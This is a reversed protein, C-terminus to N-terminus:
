RTPQPLSSRLAVATSPLAAYRGAAARHVVAVLAAADLLYCYRYDCALSVVAFAGVYAFAAILLGIVALSAARRDGRRLVDWLGMALLAGALAGWALHSLVPTEEFAEVYDEDWDDKADGRLALGARALADVDDTQVGVSVLPCDADPPTALTDWFVAARVQAYLWPRRLILRRWDDAVPGRPPPLEADASPLKDLYDITAPRFAPGAEIREFREFVPARAHLAPLGLGPDRHDAGALDYAQLMALQAAGGEEGDSRLSFAYDIAMALVVLTALALGARLVGRVLVGERPGEQVAAIVAFAACGTLTAAFGTQRALLAILFLVFALGLCGARVGARRWCRGALALAAFGGITTDAFLIDKWVVGQFVLAQPTAIALAMAVAALPGPRPGELAFVLLGGFFLLADFGIFAGGHGGLRDSWGLLWAMIPPHWDDYLGDRGQAMQSVSDVSFHGPWDAALTALFGAVALLILTRAPWASGSTTVLPARGHGRAVGTRLPGAAGEGNASGVVLGYLRPGAPATWLRPDIFM